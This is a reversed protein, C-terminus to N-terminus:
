VDGHGIRWHLATKGSSDAANPDAGCELWPAIRSVPRFAALVLPTADEPLLDVLVQPNWDAEGTANGPATLEELLTQRVAALRCDVDGGEERLLRVIEAGKGGLAALLLGADLDNKRWPRGM